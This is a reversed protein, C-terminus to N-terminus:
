DGRRLMPIFSSAQHINNGRAGPCFVRGLFTDSHWCVPILFERNEHIDGGGTWSNPCPFAELVNMWVNAYLKHMRDSYADSGFLCMCVKNVEVTQLFM